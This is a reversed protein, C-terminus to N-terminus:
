ELLIAQSLHAFVTSVRRLHRSESHTLLWLDTQCDDLPASIPILEERGQALFLPLIGV